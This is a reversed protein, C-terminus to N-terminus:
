GALRKKILIKSCRIDPHHKYRKKGCFKPPTSFKRSFFPIFFWNKSMKKQIEVLNKGMKQLTNKTTKRIQAPTERRTGRWCKADCIVFKRRMKAVVNKKFIKNTLFNKWIGEFNAMLVERLNKCQFNEGSAKPAEWKKGDGM